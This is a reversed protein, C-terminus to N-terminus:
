SQHIDGARSNDDMLSEERPQLGIDRRGIRIRRLFKDFEQCLNQPMFVNFSNCVALRSSAVGSSLLEKLEGPLQLCRKEGRYWGPCTQKVAHLRKVNDPPPSRPHEPQRIWPRQQLM